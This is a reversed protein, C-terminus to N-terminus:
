KLNHVISRFIYDKAQQETPLHHFPVICPHEKTEPNKIPGWVWGDAVKEAMWNQHSADPGATPNGIHFIVGAIASQKQWTPADDWSPQSLDRLAACYDRNIEHAVKAIKNIDECNNMDNELSLFVRVWM